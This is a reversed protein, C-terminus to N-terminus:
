VRPKGPAFFMARCARLLRRKAKAQGYQPSLLWLLVFLDSPTPSAGPMLFPSGKTRLTLYHRLTLPKVEFPGISETVDLFAADRELQERQVAERYAEAYDM